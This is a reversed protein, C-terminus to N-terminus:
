PVATRGTFTSPGGAGEKWQRYPTQVGMSDNLTDEFWHMVMKRVAAEATTANDRLEWYGVRVKSFFFWHGSGTERVEYGLTMGKEDILEIAPVIREQGEAKNIGKRHQLSLRELQVAMDALASM